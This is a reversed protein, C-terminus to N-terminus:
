RRSGAEGDGRRGHIALLQAITTASLMAILWIVVLKAAALLSPAQLALGAVVFGLGLNDAKTLAHLRSYLDPFRLLGVTGALFFGMGALILLLSLADIM